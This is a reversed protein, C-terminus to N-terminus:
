RSRRQQQRRREYDRRMAARPDRADDLSAPGLVHLLAYKVWWRIRYFLSFGNKQAGESPGRRTM